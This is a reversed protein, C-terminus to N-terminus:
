QQNQLNVYGWVQKILTQANESLRISEHQFLSERYGDFPKWEPESEVSKKAEIICTKKFLEPNDSSVGFLKISWFEYGITGCCDYGYVRTIWKNINTKM